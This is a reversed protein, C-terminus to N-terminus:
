PAAMVVCLVRVVRTGPLVAMVLFPPGDFLLVNSGRGESGELGKGL